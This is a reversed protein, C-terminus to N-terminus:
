AAVTTTTITPNMSDRIIVRYSKLPTEGENVSLELDGPSNVIVGEINLITKNKLNNGIFDVQIPSSSIEKGANTIKFTLTQQSSEDASGRRLQIFAMLPLVFPFITSAVGEVLNIISVRDTNKDVVVNQACLLTDCTM